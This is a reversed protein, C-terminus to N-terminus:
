PTDLRFNLAGSAGVLTVTVRWAGAVGPATQFTGNEGLSRSYVQTGTDDSVHLTATGAGLSSAQNVDALTGPNEWTYTLTQTVRVLATVQWEFIGPQNSVELQNAPGIVNADSCAALVAVVVAAGVPRARGRREGNFSMSARM